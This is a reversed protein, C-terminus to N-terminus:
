FVLGHWSLELGICGRIEGANPPELLEKFIYM